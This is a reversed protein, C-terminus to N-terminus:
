KRWPKWMIQRPIALTIPCYAATDETTPPETFLDSSSSAPSLSTENSNNHHLPNTPPDDYTFYQKKRNVHKSGKQLKGQLNAVIFSVTTIRM